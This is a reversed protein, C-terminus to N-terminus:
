SYNKTKKRFLKYSFILHTGPGRSSTGPNVNGKIIFIDASVDVSTSTERKKKRDREVNVPDFYITCSLQVCVMKQVVELVKVLAITQAM